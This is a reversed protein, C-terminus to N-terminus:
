RKSWINARRRSSPATLSTNWLASAVRCRGGRLWIQPVVSSGHWPTVPVLVVIWLPFPLALPQRITLCPTLARRLGM